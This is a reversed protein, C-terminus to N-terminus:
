RSLKPDYRARVESQLVWLYSRQSRQGDWAAVASPAIPDAVPKPHLETKRREWATVPIGAM